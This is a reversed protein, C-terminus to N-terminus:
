KSDFEREGPLVFEVPAVGASHLDAEPAVVTSNAPTGNASVADVVTVKKRRTKKAPAPNPVSLEGNIPAEGNPAAHDIVVGNEYSSIAPAEKKKRPRRASTKKQLQHFGDDALLVGNTEPMSTANVATTESNAPKKCARDLAVIASLEARRSSPLNLELVRRYIKMAAEDRRDLKLYIEALAPYLELRSLRRALLGEYILAAAEHNGRRNQYRARAVPSFFVFGIAFFGLVAVIFGGIVLPSPRSFNIVEVAEAAASRELLKARAAAFLEDVDRYNAQRMRIKQFSLMADDWDGGAFAATAIKYLSDLSAEGAFSVASSSLAAFSDTMPPQSAAFATEPTNTEMVNTAPSQIVPAPHRRREPEAQADFRAADRYKRNSKQAKGSVILASDPDNQKMAAVSEAHAKAAEEDNVHDSVPAVAITAKGADAILLAEIEALRAQVERFNANKAKIQELAAKAEQLNGGAKQQEAAAYLEDLQLSNAALKLLNDFAEGQGPDSARGEKLEAVAQAYRGQQYLTRGLEYSLVARQKPDDVLTRAERLASESGKGNGRINYIGALESLAKVRLNNQAFNAARRFYQEANDYNKQEKHAAGLNFLAEAFNPDIEVAQTYAAIRKAANKESLGADFWKMAERNHSQSLAAVPVLVVALLPLIYNLRSPM